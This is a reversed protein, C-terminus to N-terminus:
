RRRGGVSSPSASGTYLKNDVSFKGSWHWIDQVYQRFEEESLFVEEETSWDLMALAREYDDKHNQPVELNVWLDQQTPKHGAKLSELTAELNEVVRKSFTDFTIEFDRTHTEMNSELTQKLRDKDVKVTRM